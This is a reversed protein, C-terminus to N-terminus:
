EVPKGAMRAELQSLLKTTLIQELAVDAKETDQKKRVDITATPAHTVQKDQETVVCLVRGTAVDVLAGSGRSEVEIRNSGIVYYGIITIDLYATPEQWSSSKQVGEILFLYDAGMDSALQRMKVIHSKIAESSVKGQQTKDETPVELVAPIGEVRAFLNTETRLQKLLSERPAYEGRRAVVLTAKPKLELRDEKLSEKPRAAWETDYLSYLYATYNLAQPPEPKPQPPSQCGALLLVLISFLPDLISLRLSRDEM